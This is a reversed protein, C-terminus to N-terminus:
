KPNNNIKSIVMESLSFMGCIVYVCRHNWWLLMPSSIHINIISASASKYIESKEFAIRWMRWLVNKRLLRLFNTNCAAHHEVWPTSTETHAQHRFQLHNRQWATSSMSMNIIILWEHSEDYKRSVRAISVGWCVIKRNFIHFKRSRYIGISLRAVCDYRIGEFQM